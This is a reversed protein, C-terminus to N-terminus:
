RGVARPQAALASLRSGPPASSGEGLIWGTHRVWEMGQGAGWVRRVGLEVGCSRGEGAEWSCRKAMLALFGRGARRVKGNWRRHLPFRAIVTSAVRPHRLSGLTRLDPEEWFVWLWPGSVPRAHVVHSLGTRAPAGGWVAGPPLPPLHLSHARLESSPVGGRQSVPFGFRLPCSKGLDGGTFSCNVPSWVTRFFFM